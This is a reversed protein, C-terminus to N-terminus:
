LRVRISAPELIVQDDTESDVPKRVSAWWDLSDPYTETQRLLLVPATDMIERSLHRPTSRVIGLGEFKKPCRSDLMKATEAVISWAQQSPLLIRLSVIAGM